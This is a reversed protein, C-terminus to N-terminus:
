KDEILTVTATGFRMLGHIKYKGIIMWYDCDYGNLEADVDESDGLVYEIINPYVCRLKVSDGKYRLKDVEKYIYRRIQQEINM